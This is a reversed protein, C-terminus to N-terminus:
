EDKLTGQDCAKFLGLLNSNNGGEKLITKNNLNTQNLRVSVNRVSNLNNKLNAVEKSVADWSTDSSSLGIDNMIKGM